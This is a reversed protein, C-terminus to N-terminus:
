VKLSVEYISSVAVVQKEHEPWTEVWVGAAILGRPKM